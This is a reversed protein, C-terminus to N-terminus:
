PNYGYDIFLQEGPQIERLTWFMVAKENKLIKWGVNPTNSHNFLSGLGLAIALGDEFEYVYSSLQTSEIKSKDKKSIIILPSKELFAKEKLFSDTFLGRGFKRTKKIIIM